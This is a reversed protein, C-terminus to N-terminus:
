YLKKLKKILKSIKNDEQNINFKVEKIVEKDLARIKFVAVYEGKKLETKSSLIESFDRKEGCYTPVTEQIYINKLLEKKDGSYIEINGCHRIHVNGKNELTLKYYVKDELTHVSLSDICYDVNETGNVTVYIPVVIKVTVMQNKEQAVAFTIRASVSGKFKKNIDATYPIEITNGAKIFYKYKKFKLWDKIAVKGNGLFTKGQETEIIINIDRDYTNRLLYKGKYVSGSECKINTVPPDISLGAYSLSFCFLFVILLLIKKM